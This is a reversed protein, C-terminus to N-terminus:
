FNSVPIVQNLGIGRAHLFLLGRPLNVPLSISQLSSGAMVPLTLSFLTRGTADILRINIDQSSVSQIQATIHYSRNLLTPYIVFGNKNNKVSVRLIGSYTFHGDKDFMKLRYYYVDSVRTDADPFSYSSGNLNGSAPIIGFTTFQRGDVAKELEFYATNIETKTQWSIKVATNIVSASFTELTLPVVFLSYDVLGLAPNDPQHFIKNEIEVPDNTGWYNNQAMINEASNNYLDIGPTTLNTNGIFVNNGDDEANLNTLDGLNPKSGGQITIGWLNWRFLNDRVITNQHSSASGGTFSIGSGGLAPNNQTNNSDVQNFSVVANINSGGNFTMGYRNNKIINGSIIAYVNGIPLFGIGGSNTSSRLIQNNIIKITDEGAASTAGMNIQPVNQNTTNNGQFLCNIIKPANSINSGGQIAARQNNLFQSNTIVANSRFLAIAGNGFSTSANNNNYRFICSDIIPSSDSLRLSVAYELTLKRIISGSSNDLRMGLFGTSTNVATFLVGSPPDIIIRGLVIFSTNVLFKVTADTTINLIDGVSIRITDNVQYFGPQATLYGASNTVMDDLNWNVGTGPTSYIGAKSNSFLSFVIIMSLLFSKM